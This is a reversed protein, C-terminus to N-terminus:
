KLVEVGDSYLEIVDLEGMTKFKEVLDLAQNLVEEFSSAIVLVETSDNSRFAVRYINVKGKVDSPVVLQMSKDLASVSQITGKVSKLLTRFHSPGDALILYTHPVEESKVKEVTFIFNEMMNIMQSQKIISERYTNRTIEEM